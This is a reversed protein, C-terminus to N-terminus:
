MDTLQQGRLETLFSVYKVKKDAIAKINIKRRGM